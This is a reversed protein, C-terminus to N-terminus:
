RTGGTEGDGQSPVEGSTSGGRAENRGRHVGRQLSAFRNRVFDASQGYEQQGQVQQGPAQRGEPQQARVAQGQGPGGPLSGGPPAAPPAAPAAAQARGVAGPVRNKGPVRKPLGVNTRSTAVPRRAAEAARFGADAPSEWGKVPDEGSTSASRRQFWESQMADFIPSREPGRPPATPEPRAPPPAAARMAPEPAPPEPAYEEARAPPSGDSYGGAPAPGSDGVPIPGTEWPIQRAAGPEPVVPQAEPVVSQPGTRGSPRYVGNGGAPGHEAADQAREARPQFLGNPAGDDSPRGPLHAGPERVPLEGPRRPQQREGTQYPDEAQRRRERPPRREIPPVASQPGTGSFGGGVPIPGTEGIIPQADTGGRVPRLPGTGGVMPHGGTGGGAPAGM